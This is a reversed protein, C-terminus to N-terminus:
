RGWGTGPPDCRWVDVLRRVARIEGVHGKDRAARERHAGIAVIGFFSRRVVDADVAEPDVAMRDGIFFERAEHLDRVIHAEGLTRRIRQFIRAGVGFQEHGGGDDEALRDMLDIQAVVGIPPEINRARIPAM